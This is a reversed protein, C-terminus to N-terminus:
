RLSFSSLYQTADRQSSANEVSFVYQIDGSVVCHKAYYLTKDEERPPTEIAKQFIVQYPSAFSTLIKENEFPQYNCFSEPTQYMAGARAQLLNPVEALPTMQVSFSPPNNM